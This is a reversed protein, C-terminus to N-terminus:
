SAVKRNVSRRRTPAAPPKKVASANGATTKGAVLNPRTKLAAKRKKPRTETAVSATKLREVAENARFRIWWVSDNLLPEISACDSASGYQGLGEVAKLRVRWDQDRLAAVLWPTVKRSGHARLATIAAARVEADMDNTSRTIATFAMPSRSTGLAKLMMVQSNRPLGAALAGLAAPVSAHVSAEFVKFLMLSNSGEPREALKLVAELRPPDGVEISTRMAAVSVRFSASDQLKQLLSLTDLDSFMRLLEIANVRDREQGRVAARRYYADLYANRLMQVLRGRAEVDLTRSVDLATHMILDCSHRSRTNLRPTEGEGKTYALLGLTLNVSQAPLDRDRQQRILRAAILATMVGCSLAALVLSASWIVQLAGSM